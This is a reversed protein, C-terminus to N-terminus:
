NQTFTPVRERLHGVEYWPLEIYFPIVVVDMRYFCPESFNNM